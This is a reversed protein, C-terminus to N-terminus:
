TMHKVDDTKLNYKKGKNQHRIKNQIKGGLCNNQCRFGKDKSNVEDNIKKKIGDTRIILDNRFGEYATVSSQSDNNTIEIQLLKIEDRIQVNSEEM